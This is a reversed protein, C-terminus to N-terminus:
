ITLFKVGSRMVKDKNLNVQKNVGWYTILTETEQASAETVVGM